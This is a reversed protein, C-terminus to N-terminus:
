GNKRGYKGEGRAVADKWTLKGEGGVEKRKIKRKEELWKEKLIGEVGAVKRTKKGKVEM